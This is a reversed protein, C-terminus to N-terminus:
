AIGLTDAIEHITLGETALLTLVARQLDDLGLSDLGQGPLVFPTDAFRDIRREQRLWEVLENVNGAKLKALIQTVHWEVTKLSLGMEEAIERQTREEALLALVESQRKSIPLQDEL